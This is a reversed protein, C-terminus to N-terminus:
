CCGFCTFLFQRIDVIRFCRGYSGSKNKYAGYRIVFEYRTIVESESLFDTYIMELKKALNEDRPAFCCIGVKDDETQLVYFSYDTKDVKKITSLRTVFKM